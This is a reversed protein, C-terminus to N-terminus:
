APSVRVGILDTTWCCFAVEPSPHWEGPRYELWHPEEDDRGMPANLNLRVMENSPAPVGAWHDVASIPISGAALVDVRGGHANIGSLWEEFLGPDGPLGVALPHNGNLM